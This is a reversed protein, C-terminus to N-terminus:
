ELGKVDERCLKAVLFTGKDVEKKNVKGVWCEDNQRTRGREGGRERSVPTEHARNRKLVIGRVGALELELATEVGTVYRLRPFVPFTRRKMGRGEEREREKKGEKVCCRWKIQGSRV